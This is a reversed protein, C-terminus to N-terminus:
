GCSDGCGGECACGGDDQPSTGDGCGTEGCGACGSTRPNDITFGQGHSTHTFDITAGELHPASGGDVVVEVGGFGRLLDDEQTVDDFFLEYRLGSCGGPEAAIRLRLDDRGIEALLNKVEAVAAETLVVGHGTPAPEDHVPEDQITM